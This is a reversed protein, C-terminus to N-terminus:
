QSDRKTKGNAFFHVLKHEDESRDLRDSLQKNHGDLNALFVRDYSEFDLASIDLVDIGLFRQGEDPAAVFIRIEEIGIEKLGMYVLEAFEGGGFIAVRSEEHLALPALEERLTQRVNQYHDLVRRIYGATLQIKHSFGEPTLAYLWRKWGAQNARVYGKKVLNRLLVNTLGLAVGLRKSLERQTVQPDNEVESLLRLERYEQTDASADLPTQQERNSRM